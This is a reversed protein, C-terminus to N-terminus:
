LYDVAVLDMLLVCKTIGETREIGNELYKVLATVKEEKFVKARKEQVGKEKLIMRYGECYSKVSEQKAPNDGDAYGLMSYSKALHQIVGKVASTSAVEEGETETRTRCRDVHTRIWVGQVFAIIDL